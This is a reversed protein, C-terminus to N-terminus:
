LAFALFSMQHGVGHQCGDGAWNFDDGYATQLKTCVESAFIWANCAHLLSVNRALSNFDTEAGYSGMLGESFLVFARVASHGLGHAMGARVWRQSINIMKDNFVSNFALLVSSSRMLSQIYTIIDTMVSEFPVSNHMANEVECAAAYHVIPPYYGVVFLMKQTAIDHSKLTAWASCLESANGTDVVARSAQLLHLGGPIVDDPERIYTVEDYTHKQLHM